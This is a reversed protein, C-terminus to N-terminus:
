VFFHLSSGRFGPLTQDEMLGEDEDSHDSHTQHTNKRDPDWPHLLVCRGCRWSGSAKATSGSVTVGQKGREARSWDRTLLFLLFFSFRRGTFSSFLFFTLSRSSSVGGDGGDVGDGGDGGNGGRSWRRRRETEETRERGDEDLKGSAPRFTDQTIRLCV